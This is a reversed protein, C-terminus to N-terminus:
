NLKIVGATAIIDGDAQIKIDGEAHIEIDGPTIHIYSGGAQLWVDGSFVHFNATNFQAVSKASVYFGGTRM